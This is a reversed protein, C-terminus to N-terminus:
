RTGPAPSDICYYGNRERIVSAPSCRESAYLTRERLVNSSANRLCQTASANNDSNRAVPALADFRRVAHKACLLTRRMHTIKQPTAYHSCYHTPSRTRVNMKPVLPEVPSWCDGCM